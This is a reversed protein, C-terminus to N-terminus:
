AMEEAAIGFVRALAELYISSPRRDGTEWYTITRRSIGSRAALEDQSWGRAKRLEKITM